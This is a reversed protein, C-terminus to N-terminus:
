RCSKNRDCGSDDCDTYGDVDNDIGDSCTKGKGEDKVPSGGGDSACPKGKTRDFGDCDQDIGDKRIDCQDPNISLDLDNCDATKIFGDGDLDDDPTSENCDDDKSNYPIETM